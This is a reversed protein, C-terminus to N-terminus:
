HRYMIGCGCKNKKCYVIHYGMLPYRAVPKYKQHYESFTLKNVEEISIVDYCEFCAGTEAGLKQGCKGVIHYLFVLSGESGEKDEYREWSERSPWTLRGHKREFEVCQQLFADRDLHLSHDVLARYPKGMADLANVIDAQREYCTDEM